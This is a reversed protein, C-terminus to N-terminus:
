CSVKNSVALAYSNNDRNGSRDKGLVYVYYTRSQGRPVQSAIGYLNKQSNYQSATNPWTQTRFDPQPHSASYPSDIYVDVFVSGNPSDLDYATGTVGSCTAKVSIVPANNGSPQTIAAPPKTATAIKEFHWYVDAVANNSTNVVISPVGHYWRTLPNAEPTRPTENHCDDRDYCVTAGIVKWDSPYYWVGIRHWGRPINDFSYSNAGSKVIQAGTGMSSDGIAAGDLYVVHAGALVSDQNYGIGSVKYGRITSKPAPATPAPTGRSTGCGTSGNNNCGGAANRWSGGTGNVALPGTAQAGGPNAGNNWCHASANWPRTGAAQFIQWGQLEQQEPTANRAHPYNGWGNWTGDLVQYAGSATSSKNKASYNAPKGAGGGSECGRIRPGWYEWHTRYNTAAYTDYLKWVGVGAFIVLFVVLLKANRSAGVKQYLRAIPNRSSLKKKLSRGTNQAM